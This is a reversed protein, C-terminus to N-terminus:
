VFWIKTAVQQHIIWNLYRIRLIGNRLITMNAIRSLSLSLSWWFSILRILLFLMSSLFCNIILQVWTLLIVHHHFIWIKASFSVLCKLQIMRPLPSSSKEAIHLRSLIVLHMSIRPIKLKGVILAQWLHM